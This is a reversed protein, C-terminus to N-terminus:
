FDYGLTTYWTRPFRPGYLYGTDRDAGQDFDDQYENTINKGGLTLSFRDEGLSFRRTVSCDVVMFTPTTELVDDAIYGAYHPLKEEGMFRVGLFADVMEPNKYKGMFVGYSEPTRFFAKEDFDQPEDYEATQLVWGLQMEFRENMWGVAAEVGQIEAEGANIRTFELEDTLPDDLDETLAFADTLETRFANLEFRGFGGWLPPLAEIGLTYSRSSEEQLDEANRIVQAEGNSQAIHLDEDFVQPALFGSSYSGRVSVDQGAQYRVALRPSVIADDLINHKDLRVSPVLVLKETAQWEDQLYVGTNKYIEDTVRDYAPQTDTLEDRTHQLGGTIIHNGVFYNLQLDGLLLPNDTVGYAATDGGGGYYTNRDTKAHALTLQSSFSSNWQQSWSTSLSNRWTRIWEAIESEFPPNDIKDGGRRDEFTRSFDVVLKGDEGLLRQIRTGFSTSKRRGIESFGDGDFDHAEVQDAQGYLTASTVEDHSVVDANFSASHNTTGDMDEVRVAASTASHHPVHPIVNVVGGVAGPGYLSSGGGKTVEIREILRSPIQELGYVLALGSFIPQSDYLVQSYKGELGLISLTTFNCNQCSNLIRLGPTFECADALSAAQVDVIDSRTMLQTRVPTEALTSETKTGTVVTEEVRSGVLSDAPAWGTEGALVPSGALLSAALLLTILPAIHNRM